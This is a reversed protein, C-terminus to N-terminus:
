NELNKNIKKGYRYEQCCRVRNLVSIIKGMVDIIKGTKDVNSLM